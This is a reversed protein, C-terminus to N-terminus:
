ENSYVSFKVTCEFFVKLGLLYYKSFSLRFAVAVALLFLTLIQVGIYLSKM